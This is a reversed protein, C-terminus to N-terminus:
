WYSPMTGVWLSGPCRILLRQSASRAFFSKWLKVSQLSIRLMNGTQLYPLGRAYIYQNYPRIDNLRFAVILMQTTFIENPDSLLNVGIVVQPWAVIWNDLM